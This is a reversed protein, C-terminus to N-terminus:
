PTTDQSFTMKSRACLNNLAQPIHTTIKKYGLKCNDAPQCQKIQILKSTCQDFYVPFNIKPHVTLVKVPKRTM